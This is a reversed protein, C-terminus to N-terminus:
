KCCGEHLTMVLDRIVVDNTWSESILTRPTPSVLFPKADNEHWWWGLQTIQATSHWRRYRPKARITDFYFAAFDQPYGPQPPGCRMGEVAARTTVERGHSDLGSIYLNRIM